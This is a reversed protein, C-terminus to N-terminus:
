VGPGAEPWAPLLPVRNAPGAAAPPRAARM